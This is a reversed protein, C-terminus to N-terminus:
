RLLASFSECLAPNFGNGYPFFSMVTHTKYFRLHIHLVPSPSTFSVGECKVKQGVSIQIANHLLLAPFHSFVKIPFVCPRASVISRGNLVSDIGTLRVFPRSLQLIHRFANLLSWLNGFAAVATEVGGYIQEFFLFAMSVILMSTRRAELLHASFRFAPRFVSVAFPCCGSVTFCFAPVACFSICGSFFLDSFSAPLGAICDAASDGDRVVVPSLSCVSTLNSINRSVCLRNLYLTCVASLYVYLSEYFIASVILVM